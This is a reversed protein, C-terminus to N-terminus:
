LHIDDAAQYGKEVGNAPQEYLMAMRAAAEDIDPEAWVQGVDYITAFAPQFRHDEATIPRLKFAVPYSNTTTMFDTNGSYNTAIVPKGLFMAEAMGRGFGEARHLSVYVDACTLLDTMQQRTMMKNLLIGNIDEVLHFLHHYLPPYRELYQSKIVLLPLLASLM